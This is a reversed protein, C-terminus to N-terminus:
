DVKINARQIVEQWRAIDTKILQQLAGASTGEPISLGTGEMRTPVGPLKLVRAMAERLRALIAPSTGSVATLGCWSEVNMNPVGSEQFTPVEPLERMRRPSSVSIPKLKGAQYLASATPM